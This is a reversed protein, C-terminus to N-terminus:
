ASCACYTMRFSGSVHYESSQYWHEVRDCELVKVAVNMSFCGTWWWGLQEVKNLGPYRSLGEPGVGKGPKEAPPPLSFPPTQASLGEGDSKRHSFLVESARSLAIAWRLLWGWSPTPPPPLHLHLALAAFPPYCAVPPPTSPNIFLWLSHHLDQQSTSNDTQDYTQCVREKEWLREGQWPIDTWDHRWSTKLGMSALLDACIQTIM